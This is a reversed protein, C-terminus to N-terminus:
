QLYAAPRVGQDSSRFDPLEGRRMACRCNLHTRDWAGGRLIRISKEIPEFASGDSPTKEYRACGDQCWELVNGLVDHLGFANPSLKGVPAPISFGDNLSLDYPWGKSGGHNKLYLDAVNAVGQLSEIEDGTWWITSTRARAAYEWESETPLRLKLKRLVEYCDNWNLQEVPHLLNVAGIAGWSPNYTSPNNGTFRLWQGQTMEYKSLLFPKLRVDHVPNEDPGAQPDVNPAGFPNNFNPQIAGMKFDGGPILVFVLGTRETLVLKGDKGRSPIEGTQLNVFEWLMSDADRGIPVFGIQPKIILGNYQPCEEHNKISAVAENWIAKHDKISKKEITEAFTLYSNVNSVLGYNEESLDFLGSVLEALTDHWWKTEMNKFTLPRAETNDSEELLNDGDAPVGKSQLFALTQQHEDLRQLLDDARKLWDTINDINEPYAPLLNDVDERLEKLRQLDSLRIIRDYNDKIVKSQEEAKKEATLARDREL